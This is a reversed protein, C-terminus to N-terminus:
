YMSNNEHWNWLLLLLLLLSLLLFLWIFGISILVLACCCCIFTETKTQKYVFIFFSVLPLFPKLISDSQNVQHTRCTTRIMTMTKATSSTTAPTTALVTETFISSYKGAISFFYFRPVLLTQQGRSMWGQQITPNTWDNLRVQRGNWQYLQSPM